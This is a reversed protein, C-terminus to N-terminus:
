LSATTSDSAARGIVTLTLYILMAHPGYADPNHRCFDNTMRQALCIRHLDLVVSAFLPPRGKMNGQLMSQLGVHVHYVHHLYIYRLVRYRRVSGLLLM